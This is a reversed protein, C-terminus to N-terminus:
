RIFSAFTKGLMCSRAREQGPTIGIRCEYHESARCANFMDVTALINVWHLCEPWLIVCILTQKRESFVGFDFIPFFNIKVKAKVVTLLLREICLLLRDVEIVKKNLTFQHSMDPASQIMGRSIEKCFEVSAEKAGVM